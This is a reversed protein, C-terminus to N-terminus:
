GNGLARVAKEIRATVQEYLVSQRGSRDLGSFDVAPGFTLRSSQPEGLVEIMEKGYQTGSVHAPYVNVGSKIALLGIGFQFPLVDGSTAIKGEPFVGLVAGEELARLATRTAALDRGKRDVPIAGIADLGQRLGPIDYYERAMMWRVLRPCASQLLLPDLGSIHNSALIAPGNPPVACPMVIGVQHYVRSYVRNAGLAFRTLLSHEYGNTAGSPEYV